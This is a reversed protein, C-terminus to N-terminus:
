TNIQKKIEEIKDDMEDASFDNCEPLTFSRKRSVFENTNSIPINNIDILNGFDGDKL